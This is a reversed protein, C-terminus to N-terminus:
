NILHISILVPITIIYTSYLISNIHMINTVYIYKVLMIFYLVLSVRSYFEILHDLSINIFFDSLNFAKDLYFLSNNM